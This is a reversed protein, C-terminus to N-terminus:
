VHFSLIPWPTHSELMSTPSPSLPHTLETILFHSSHWSSSPNAGWNTSEVDAIQINEFGTRRRQFTWAL